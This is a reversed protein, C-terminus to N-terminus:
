HRDRLIQDIGAAECAAILADLAEYALQDTARGLFGARHDFRRDTLFGLNIVAGTRHDAVRVAALVVAHAQEHQGEAAALRDAEQHELGAVCVQASNCSCAKRRSPPHVRTTTSSLRPSPTSLGSM